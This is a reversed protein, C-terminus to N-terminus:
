HVLASMETALVWLARNLKLDRDVSKIERSRQVRGSPGRNLRVGGRILNEQVVNFTTFLDPKNDGYRHPVLLQDAKVGATDDFRLPLAARAFAMRQDQTLDLGSWREINDAILPFDEVISFVGDLVRGTLDDKGGHRYRLAGQSDSVVLGNSCVLRLLAPDVIFGSTGNHSNTLAIEPLVNGVKALKTNMDSERRFRISHKVYDIGDETKCRSAGVKVPMFGENRLADVVEITPVFRYRESRNEDAATAFISPAVRHLQENSLVQM